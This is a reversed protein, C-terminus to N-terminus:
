PMMGSPIIRFFLFIRGAAPYIAPDLFFSLGRM